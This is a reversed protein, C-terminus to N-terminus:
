KPCLLATVTMWENLVSTNRAYLKITSVIVVCFLCIENKRATLLFRENNNKEQKLCIPTHTHTQPSEQQQSLNKKHNEFNNILTNVEFFPNTSANIKLVTCILTNRISISRCRTHAYIFALSFVCRLFHLIKKESDIFVNHDRAHTHRLTSANKHHRQSRFLIGHWPVVCEATKWLKFLGFVIEWKLKIDNWKKRKEKEDSWQKACWCRNAVLYYVVTYQDHSRSISM